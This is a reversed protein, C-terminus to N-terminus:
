LRYDRFQEALQNNAFLFRAFPRPTTQWLLELASWKKLLQLLVKSPREEGSTLFIIGVRERIIIDKEAAVKLMRKNCSLALWEKEGAKTLWFEDDRGGWSMGVLSRADYGVAALANPVGTGIDEDCLLIM